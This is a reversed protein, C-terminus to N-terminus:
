KAARADLDCEASSAAVLLPGDFAGFYAIHSAM